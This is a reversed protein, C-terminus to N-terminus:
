TTGGKRWEKLINKISQNYGRRWSEHHIKGMGHLFGHDTNLMLILNWPRDDYWVGNSHHVHWNLEKIRESDVEFDPLNDQNYNGLADQQPLPPYQFNLGPRFIFFYFQCKGGMKNIWQKSFGYKLFKAGMGVRARKGKKSISSFVFPCEKCRVSPNRMEHLNCVACFKGDKAEPDLLSIAGPVDFLAGSVRTWTKAVSKISTVGLVLDTAEM